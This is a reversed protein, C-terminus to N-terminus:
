KAINLTLGIIKDITRNSGQRQYLLFSTMIKKNSDKKSQELDEIKLAIHCRGHFYSEVMKTQDKKEKKFRVQMTVYWKVNQRKLLAARLIKM